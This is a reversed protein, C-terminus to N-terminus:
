ADATLALLFLSPLVTAGDEDPASTAALELRQATEAGSGLTDRLADCGNGARHTQGIGTQGIGIQVSAVPTQISATPGPLWQVPLPAPHNVATQVVPMALALNTQTVAGDNGPSAIRISINVNIPQYQSTVPQYQSSIAIRYKCKRKRKRRLELELELELDAPSLGLSCLRRHSRTGWSWTWTWDWSDAPTLPSDPAPAPDAPAAPAAAAGNAASPDHYQPDPAQYRVEPPAAVPMPQSLAANIQTVAGNDGPSDFRVSINVNVPQVQQVAQAVRSFLRGVPEPTAEPPAAPSDPLPEPRVPTELAPAAAPPVAPEQSAQESPAATAPDAPPVSEPEPPVPTLTPTVVPAPAPLAPVPTPTVVPQTAAVAAAVIAQPDPLV